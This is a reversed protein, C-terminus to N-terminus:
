AMLPSVAHRLLIHKGDSKNIRNGFEVKFINCTGYSPYLMDSFFINAMAMVMVMVMVVVMVMVMVVVMVM